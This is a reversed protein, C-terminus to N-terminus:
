PSPPTTPSSSAKTFAINQYADTYNGGGNEAYQFAPAKSAEAAQVNVLTGAGQLMGAALVASMVTTTLKKGYGKKM